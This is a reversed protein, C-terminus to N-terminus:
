RVQAQFEEEIAKALYYIRDALVACDEDSMAELSAEANSEDQHRKHTHRLLTRIQSLEESLARPLAGHDIASLDVLAGLMRMHMSGQHFDFRRLAKWGNLKALHLAKHTM